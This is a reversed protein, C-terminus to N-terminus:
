KRAGLSVLLKKGVPSMNFTDYMFMGSDNMSSDISAEFRLFFLAVLLRLEM